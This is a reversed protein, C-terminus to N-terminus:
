LSICETLCYEKKDWNVRAFDVEYFYVTEDDPVYVFLGVHAYHKKQEALIKTKIRRYTISSEVRLSGYYTTGNITASIDLENEELLVSPNYGREALINCAEALDIGYNSGGFTKEFSDYVSGYNLTSRIQALDNQSLKVRYMPDQLLSEGKNKALQWLYHIKRLRRHYRSNLKLDSIYQTGEPTESNVIFNDAVTGGTIHPKSGGFVDDSCPNLTLMVNSKEGNCKKCSHFLNPYKDTNPDQNSQPNFHDKEFAQDAVQLVPSLVDELSGCYACRRGFDHRLYMKCSKSHYTINRKKRKYDM